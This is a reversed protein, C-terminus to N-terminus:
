ATQRQAALDEARKSLKERLTRCETWRLGDKSLIDLVDDIQKEPLTSLMDLDQTDIEMRALVTEMNTTDGEAGHFFTKLAEQRSSPAAALPECNALYEVRLKWFAQKVAIFESFAFGQSLIYTGLPAWAESKRALLTVDVFTLGLRHTVPLLHSLGTSAMAADTGSSYDKWDEEPTDGRERRILQHWIAM